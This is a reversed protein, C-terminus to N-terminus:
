IIGHRSKHCKACLSILSGTNLSFIQWYNKHHLQINKTSRCDNCIKPNKRYYNAKVVEWYDSALFDKYTRWNRYDGFVPAKGIRAKAVYKLWRTQYKSIAM